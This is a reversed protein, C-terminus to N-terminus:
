FRIGSQRERATAMERATATATATPRADLFGRTM